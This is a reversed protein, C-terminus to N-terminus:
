LPGTFNLSFVSFDGLDVDGDNDFDADIGPPCSAAPPNNAGAFCLSFQSFDSLDVDGDCDFDGDPGCDQFEFAGMDLFTLAGVGTDSTAPDDFTRGDGNLDTSGGGAATYADYDAADIGLSGAALRYDGNAADVFTPAGDINDGTAGSYLCRSTSATAGSFALVAGASTDFASNIIEVTTANLGAGVFWPGTYDAFTCNVISGTSPQNGTQYYVVANGNTDGEFLCNVFSAHSDLAGVATASGDLRTTNNRFTCEQFVVTSSQLAVAGFLFGGSDNGEFRCNRFTVDSDFAIFAAGGGNAANAVGNRLTLGEITIAGSSQIRLISGVIGGGDIITADPGQGRINLDVGNPFEISNENLTCAGLEIVDGAASADIAAQITTHYTDQTVNWVNPSSPCTDCDDPISDGDTDISDDGGDCVDCDNPVGDGDSDPGNDDFGPCVDCGDPVGDGDSDLTDDFGPCVDCSDPVGDGDSDPGDDQNEYAGMDLYTLAGTGTDAICSDSTRADSNLDTAGGGAAVYADYDAADIGLSGAALRYDDGAADVFTPVGDINTGTGGPFLSYAATAGGGLVSTTHAGDFVCNTVSANGSVGNGDTNNVFTCNSLTKPSAGEVTHVAGSNGAFLCNLFVASAAGGCASASVAGFNDIFRCADFLMTTGSGSVGVAGQGFGTGDCDRFDVRRFTLNCNVIAQVAAGGNAMVPVGRRITLDEITSEDGADMWFVRGMYNGDIITSERGQGRITIDKNQMAFGWDDFTCAGLEIIDGQSSADIADQITLHFTAQTVNEINVDPCNDCDDPISDGDADFVAFTMGQSASTSTANTTVTLSTVPGSFRIIGSHQAPRPMEIANGVVTAGALGSEITFPQDFTYTPTSPGGAGGGRWADTYLLLDSVPADFTVTWEAAAGYELREQSASLPAAAYDAGSLDSTSIGFNIGATVTSVTVTTDCITGTAESGAASTWDVGVADAWAASVFFLGALCGSITTKAKM